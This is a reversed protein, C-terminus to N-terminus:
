STHPTTHIVNCRSTCVLKHLWHFIWYDTILGLQLRHWLWVKPHHRGALPHDTRCITDPSGAVARATATQHPLLNVTPYFSSALPNLSGNQHRRNFGAERCPSATHQFGGWNNSGTVRLRVLSALGFLTYYFM